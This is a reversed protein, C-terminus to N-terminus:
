PRRAAAAEAALLAEPDQRYAHLFEMVADAFVDNRDGAVMHGAGSIDAFRAHPVLDLFERVHEEGVLESQQGRVLLTPIKLGKAAARLREVFHERDTNVPMPGDLFRPDWHWRYRGDAHRRLNKKLGEASPPRKRHPLYAAVAEAAEEISVFGEKVHQRMFGQVKAVGDPDIRPTIDVLVLASFMGGHPGGAALMGAIGGLSAGVVVPKHGFREFIQRAVAVLDEAYLAFAYRGGEVWDSDGHGRQDICIALWGAEALRRAAQGWAHRTQGGGHLFVAVPGHEDGREDGVIRNGDVGQFGIRKM